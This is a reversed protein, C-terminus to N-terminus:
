QNHYRGSKSIFWVDVVAFVMWIIITSTFVTDTFIPCIGKLIFIVGSIAIMIGINRCLPVIKIKEKDAEPMKKWAALHKHIKGLAFGVGAGFFLIGLIVCIIDM